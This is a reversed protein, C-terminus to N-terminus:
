MLELYPRALEYAAVKTTSPNGREIIEIMKMYRDMLPTRLLELCGEEDDIKALRFLSRLTACLEPQSEPGLISDIGVQKGIGPLLLRGAVEVVAEDWAGYERFTSASVGVSVSHMLEHVQTRLLDDTGIIANRLGIACSFPKSGDYEPSEFVFVSGNWTSTLGTLREVIPVISRLSSKLKEITEPDASVVRINPPDDWDHGVGPRLMHPVGAEVNAERGALAQLDPPMRPVAGFGPTSDVVSHDSWGGAPVDDTVDDDYSYVPQLMTRCHPHLPPVRVHSGRPVKVKNLPRCIHSTRDDLVVDYEYGLLEPGQSEMRGYHGLNWLRMTETRAIREAQWTEMGIVVGRIQETMDRVTAGEVAGSTTIRSVDRKVRNTYRHLADDVTGEYWRGWEAPMDIGVDIPGPVVRADGTRFQRPADFEWGMAYARKGSDLIAARMQDRLRALRVERFAWSRVPALWREIGRHALALRRKLEIEVRRIRRLEQAYRSV